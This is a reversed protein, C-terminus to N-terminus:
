EPEGAPAKEPQPLRITFRAGGGPRNEVAITGGHAEVFGKVITLGLGSGGTPATPARFFKEFIRPLWEPPIGPGHDAVSLILAEGAIQAQIEIPTGAPTHTAANLLLNGLAHQMLSFDLRVLLPTAPMKQKVPHTALERQLERLTTQVLDRADHWDLRPRVQGSELRAVDLLNGVIRNLRANAEQIEGILGRRQELTLSDTVALVSAASTSAALPTRLEHSISNLLTRSFKESEALLRSHEAASRLEVRDLVLAAQRAFTELLDRQALTPRKGPLSVALIGFAKRDTALPLHLAEAGPLNDTFRGAAKRQRFAWDAVSLEKESLAFSSDPHV